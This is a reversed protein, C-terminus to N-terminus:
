VLLLRLAQLQHSRELAFQLLCRALSVGQAGLQLFGFGFGALEGLLLLREFCAVAGREFRLGFVGFFALFETQKGFGDGCPTLLALRELLPEGLNLMGALGSALLLLTGRFGYLLQFAGVPLALACHLLM